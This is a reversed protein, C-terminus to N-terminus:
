GCDSTSSVYAQMAVAAFAQELRERALVGVIARVAGTRDIVVITSHGRVQYGACAAARGGLLFESAHLMPTHRLDTGAWGRHAYDTSVASAPRHLLLDARPRESGSHASFLRRRWLSDARDSHLRATGINSRVRNDRVYGRGSSMKFCRADLAEWSKAVRQQYILSYVILANAFHTIHLVTTRKAVAGGLVM